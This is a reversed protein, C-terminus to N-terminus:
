LGVEVMFVGEGKEHVDEECEGGGEEYEDEYEEEYEEEGGATGEEDQEGGPWAAGGGEEAAEGEGEEYEGEDECEDDEYEDEDECEDGDEYEDDDEYEAGGGGDDSLAAGGSSSAPGDAVASFELVTLRPLAGAAAASFAEMDLPAVGGRVHVSLRELRGLPLLLLAHLAAPDAVGSLRLELDVLLPAWGDAWGKAAARAIVPASAHKLELSLRTLETLKSLGGLCRMVLGGNPAAADLGRISLERLSTVWRAAFLRPLRRATRAAGAAPKCDVPNAPEIVLRTLPPMPAVCLARWDREPGGPRPAPGRRPILPRRTEYFDIDVCELARLAPLRVAAGRATLLGTGTLSLSELAGPAAACCAGLFCGLRLTGMTLSGMSLHGERSHVELARLAPLSGPPLAHAAFPLSEEDLGLALRTLQSLWPARWPAAPLCRDWQGRWGGHRTKDLELDRLRTLAAAAQPEFLAPLWLAVADGSLALAELQPLSAQPLLEWRPEKCHDGYSPSVHVSLRALRPLCGFADALAETGATWRGIVSVSLSTLGQLRSVAAGLRRLARADSHCHIGPRARVDIDGLRLERLAAGGGALRELAAALWACDPPLMGGIGSIVHPSSSPQGSPSRLSLSVLSRLRPALSVLAPLAADTDWLWRARAARGDVFDRAARNVLRIRSLTPGPLKGLVAELALAPFGGAPSLPWLPSWATHPPPACAVAAAATGAAGRRAAASAPRSRRNKHM